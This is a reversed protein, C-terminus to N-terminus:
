GVRKLDTRTLELSNIINNRKTEEDDINYIYSYTTRIDSHGLYDRIIEINVGNAYMVSAVTRRIDHSSKIQINAYKCMKRLFNDFQRNTMRGNGNIFIFDNKSYHANNFSKIKNFLEIVYDSLPLIRNGTESKGKTHEKVVRITKNNANLGNTEMRQIHISKDNYDIDSWKLASLEGVRLGLQFLILIGYGNTRSQKKIDKEIETFLKNKEDNFYVRDKPNHKTKPKCGNLKVEIDDCPNYNIYGNRKAIKFVDTMIIKMNGYEKITFNDFDTMCSYFFNEIDDITINQIPKNVIENDRYYLNWHNINRNITGVALGQKKRKELWDVYISAITHKEELESYIKVLKDILSQETTATIKIKKGESNIYRTQWLSGKVGEKAPTIAFKHKQLVEKRKMINILDLVDDSSLNVGNMINQLEIKNNKMSANKLARGRCKVGKM